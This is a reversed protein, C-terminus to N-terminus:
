MSGQFKSVFFAHMTEFCSSKCSCINKCALTKSIQNKFFFENLSMEVSSLSKDFLFGWFRGENEM